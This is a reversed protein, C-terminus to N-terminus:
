KVSTMQFSCKTPVGLQSYVPRYPAGLCVCVCVCTFHLVTHTNTKGAITLRLNIGGWTVSLRNDFSGSSIIYLLLLIECVRDARRHTLGDTQWFQTQGRTFICYIGVRWISFRVTFTKMPHLELKLIFTLIFFHLSSFAFLTEKCVFLFLYVSLFSLPISLCFALCHFAVFVVRFKGGITGLTQFYSIDHQM